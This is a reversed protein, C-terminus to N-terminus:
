RCRSLWVTTQGNAIYKGDRVSYDHTNLNRNSLVRWRGPSKEYIHERVHGTFNITLQLTDDPNIRASAILLSDRLDGYERDLYASRGRLVYTYSPDDRNPARSCDVKWSGLM